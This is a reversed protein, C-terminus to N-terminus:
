ATRRKREVIKWAPPDYDERELKGFKRGGWIGYKERRELAGELCPRKVPCESCIRKAEANWERNEVFWLRQDQGRCKADRTWDSM